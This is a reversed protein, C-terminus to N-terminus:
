VLEKLARLPRIKIVKRAPKPKVEMMEGPKFPNPRTGGKTAPKHIVTVKMMGALNVVGAGKTLDAAMVSSLTDFVQQVQKRALGTADAITRYLDGKSRPKNSPAIRPAKAATGKRAASKGAAKRAM